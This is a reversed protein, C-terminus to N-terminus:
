LIIEANPLLAVIIKDGKIKDNKRQNKECIIQGLLQL